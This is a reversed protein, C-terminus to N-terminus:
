DPKCDFAWGTPAVLRLSEYRQFAGSGNDRYLVIQGGWELHVKPELKSAVVWSKQIGGDPRVLDIHWKTPPEPKACGVILVCLLILRKM